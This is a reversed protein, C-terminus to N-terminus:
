ASPPLVAGAAITRRGDECELILAGSLDLDAFVGEIVGAPANVRITRGLGAANKLWQERIAAFGEERWIREWAALCADLADVVDLPDPVVGASLDLLRAVPYDLGDPASVVNVGIGLAVLPPASPAPTLLELLVGAIKGANVLVDNPWKVQIEAKPAFRSVADSVALAAVFSLQPLREPASAPEFLFTAAVDGERQVWGAGRRGYGATQRLAVIWLPGREGAAARRKAELSTSDLTDFVEIRAGSAFKRAM